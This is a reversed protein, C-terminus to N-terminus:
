LIVTFFGLVWSDLTRTLSVSSVLLVVLRPHGPAVPHQRGLRERALRPVPPNLLLAVDDVAKLFGRVRHTKPKKITM